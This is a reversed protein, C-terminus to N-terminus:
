KYSVCSTFSYPHDSYTVQTVYEKKWIPPHFIRSSFRPKVKNMVDLSTSSEAVDEQDPVIESDHVDIAQVEDVNNDLSVEYRQQQDHNHWAEDDHVNILADIDYDKLPENVFTPIYKDQLKRFPFIHEKFIVDRSVTFRKIDLDYLM